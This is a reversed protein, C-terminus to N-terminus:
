GRDVVALLFLLPRADSLSNTEKRDLTVLPHPYAGALDGRVLSSLLSSLPPGALDRVISAM